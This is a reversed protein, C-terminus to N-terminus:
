DSFDVNRLLFLKSIDFAAQMLQFWIPLCLVSFKNRVSICSVPLLRTGYAERIENGTRAKGKLDKMKCEALDDYM